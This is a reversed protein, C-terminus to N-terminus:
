FSISIDLSVEIIGWHTEDVRGYLRCVGLIHQKMLWNKNM